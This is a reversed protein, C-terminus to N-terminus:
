KYNYKSIVRHLEFYHEYKGIGKSEWRIRYTENELGFGMVVGKVMEPYLSALILLHVFTNYEKTNTIKGSPNSYYETVNNLYTKLGKRNFKVKDGIKLSYKPSIDM